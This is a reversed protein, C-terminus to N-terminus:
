LQKLVFSLNLFFVKLKKRLSGLARSNPDAEAALDLTEKAQVIYPDVSSM